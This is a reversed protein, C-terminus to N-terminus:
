TVLMQPANGTAYERVSRLRIGYQAATEAANPIEDGKAYALMLAGFARELPVSSEHQAMLAQAPVYDIRMQKGLAEEFVRVADLQSLSEPGGLELITNKQSAATSACAVAFEAVSSSSIYSVKANGSGYIRVSGNTADFGLMPSLWVEMFYSPRLIFTEMKSRILRNECDRKASELPSDFRMNGSYSVYIFRKVDQEEAAEILSLAGDHDVQRLGDDAASPMSTASCFVTDFGHVADRLTAPIRLDGGIVEIGSDILQQSVAHNRGGRVLAAVDSGSKSLQLAVERGVRGTGGVVLISM